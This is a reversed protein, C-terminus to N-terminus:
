DTHQFSIIRRSLNFDCHFRITRFRITRLAMGFSSSLSLITPMMGCRIISRSLHRDNSKNFILAHVTFINMICEHNDEIQQGGWEEEMGGCVCLYIIEIAYNENM